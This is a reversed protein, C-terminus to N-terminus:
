LGKRLQKLQTLLSQNQAIQVESLDEGQLPISAEFAQLYTKLEDSGAVRAFNKLADRAESERQLRTLTIAKQAHLETYQRLFLRQQEPKNLTNKVREVLAIAQEFESLAAQFDERTLFIGAREYRTDAEGLPQPQQQYLKLAENFHKLAEDFQEKGQHAIGLALEADAQGLQDDAQQFRLLAGNADEIAEEWLERAIMTQGVGLM